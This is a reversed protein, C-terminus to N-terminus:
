KEKFLRQLTYGQKSLKIRRQIEQALVKGLDVFKNDNEVLLKAVASHLTNTEAPKMVDAM